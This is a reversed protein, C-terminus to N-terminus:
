GFHRDLSYYLIRSWFDLGKIVQGLPTCNWFILWLNMINPTELSKCVECFIDIMILIATTGVIYFVNEVGCYCNCPHSKVAVLLCNMHNTASPGCPPSIILGWSMICHNEPHPRTWIAVKLQSSSTNGCM